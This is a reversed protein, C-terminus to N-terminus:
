VMIEVSDLSGVEMIMHVLEKIIFRQLVRILVSKPKLLSELFLINLILKRFQSQPKQFQHDLRILNFSSLSETEVLLSLM